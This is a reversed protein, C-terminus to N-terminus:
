FPIEATAPDYSDKRTLATLRWIVREDGNAVRQTLRAIRRCGSSCYRARSTNAIPYGCQRCAHWPDHPEHPNRTFERWLWVVAGIMARMLVLRRRGHMRREVMALALLFPAFM